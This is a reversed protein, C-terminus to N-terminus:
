IWSILGLKVWQQGLAATPDSVNGVLGRGRRELTVGWQRWKKHSRRFDSRLPGTGVELLLLGEQKAAPRSIQYAPSQFGQLFCYFLQASVPATRCFGLATDSSRAPEAGEKSRYPWSVTQRFRSRPQVRGQALGTVKWRRDATDLLSAWSSQRQARGTDGAARFM